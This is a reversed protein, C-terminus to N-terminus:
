ANGGKVRHKLDIRNLHDELDNTWQRDLTELESATPLEGTSLFRAVVLALRFTEREDGSGIAGIGYELVLKLAQLRDQRQQDLERSALERHVLDAHRDEAQELARRSVAAEGGVIAAHRLEAQEVESRTPTRAAAATTKRAM